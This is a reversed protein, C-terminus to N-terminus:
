EGISVNRTEDGLTLIYDGKFAMFIAKGKSDTRVTQNTMWQESLLKKVATFAPKADLQENLLAMKPNLRLAAWMEGFSVGHVGPHSFFLTLYDRIMAIQQEDNEANVAFGAIFIPIKLEKQVYDLRKEMAQPAVDPRNVTAGLVIGEPGKRNQKLWKIFEVTDHM